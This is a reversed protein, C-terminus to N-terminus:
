FSLYDLGRLRELLEARLLADASRTPMDRAGIIAIKSM